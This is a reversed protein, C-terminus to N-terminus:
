TVNQTDTLGGSDTLILTIVASGTADLVPTITLEDTIPDISATFLSSNGGVVFWILGNGEGAPGDETDSEYFTLNLGEPTNELTTIDPILSSIVPSTNSEIPLVKVPTKQSTISDDGIGIQGYGNYGWAWISGDSKRALGHYSGCAIETVDTLVLVQAPCGYFNDVYTGVGLRGRSNEGWSWVTGDSKLALFFDNGAAINTINDLGPIQFPVEYIYNNHKDALDAFIAGWGWVTGDSKLAISVWTGGSAVSIVDDLGLLVPSWQDEGSGDGVADGGNYGWAWVTGDSKVAFGQYAGSEISIIDELGLIQAPVPQYEPADAGLGLNGYPNWGWSWVTKDSKLALGYHHGTEISIIGSLDLPGIPVLSNDGETEIGLESVDNSGWAWVTGDSKLAFSHSWAISALSIADSFGISEPSWKYAGTEVGDGLQGEGNSGWSWVTGEYVVYSHMEGGAIGSLITPSIPPPLPNGTVQVTYTGTQIASYARVKVYYIGPSLSRFIYSASGEGGDDNEKILTTENNPGYLYIYTDALTGLQTEIGYTGAEAVTFQYMDEEGGVTIEALTPTDNVTLIPYVAAMITVTIDQAATLGGSDTLTLTVVDSGEQDVVPTITLVDTVADISANFLATNVGSITWTLTEDTDELDTENATLDYTMFTDKLTSIDEVEPDIVPSTNVAVGTTFSWVPGSTSVAKDDTAVIQWYYTTNGSLIGPDYTIGSQGSSVLEPPDSTGFYVDYSVIDEVDPDGGIWSLIMNVYVDVSGDVPLPISPLDPPNNSIVVEVPVNTSIGWEWLTGNETLALSHYAGAAAAVVDTLGVVSVLYNLTDNEGNGLQGYKNYGCAELTTDTKIFLIHYGGTAIAKVGDPVVIVPTLADTWDDGGQALAGWGGDGWGYVRGNWYPANSRLAYSTQEGATIATIYSLGTVQEPTARDDRTEDGLQGDGNWGWAWVYGDSDLALSHYGGAAIAIINSLGAIQSPPDLYTLTDSGLQGYTNGGWSWVNGDSDLALNHYYGASISVIDSLGLPNAPISSDALIGDGLAGGQGWAWVTGDLALALSHNYGASVAFINTINSVPVPTEEDDFFGNGLQGKHGSGWALVTGDPEIFLKHFWGVAVPSEGWISINVEYTDTLGGSDALLLTVSCVGSAYPVPTVTLIDTVPDISASFVSEDVGIVFWRLENGDAAPGDEADSEYDTLDLTVPTDDGVITIDSIGPLIVPSTNAEIPLVKVPTLQYQISEDGIGVAGILN